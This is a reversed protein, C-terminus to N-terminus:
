QSRQTLVRLSVPGQLAATLAVTGPYRPGPYNLKCYSSLRGPWRSGVLPSGTVSRCQGVQSSRRRRAVPGRAHQQSNGGRVLRCRVQAIQQVLVRSTRLSEVQREAPRVHEIGLRRGLAARRGKQQLDIGHLKHAAAAAATLSEGDVM